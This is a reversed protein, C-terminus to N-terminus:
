DECLITEAWIRARATPRMILNYAKTRVGAVSPEDPVRKPPQLERAAKASVPAYVVWGFARRKACVGRGRGVAQAALVGAAVAEDKNLCDVRGMYGTFSNPDAEVHPQTGLCALAGASLGRQLAGRTHKKWANPTPFRRYM